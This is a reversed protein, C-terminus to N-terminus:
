LGKKLLWQLTSTDPAPVQGLTLARSSGSMHTLLTCLLLSVFPSLNESPSLLQMICLSRLLVSSPVSRSGEPKGM